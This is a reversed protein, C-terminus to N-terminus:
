ALTQFSTPPPTFHELHELQCSLPPFSSYIYTHRWFSGNPCQQTDCRNFRHAVPQVPAAQARLASDAVPNWRNSRHGTTWRNSRHPQLGFSAQGSGRLGRSRHEGTPSTLGVPAVPQVPAEGTPDTLSLPLFLSRGGTDVPQVPPVKKLSPEVGVM